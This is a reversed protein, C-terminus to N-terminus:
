KITASAIFAAVDAKIGDLVKQAAVRSVADKNDTSAIAEVCNQNQPATIKKTTTDILGYVINTRLAKLNQDTGCVSAVLSDDVMSLYQQYGKHSLKISNDKLLTSGSSWWLINRNAATDAYTIMKGNPLTDTITPTASKAAVQNKLESNEAALSKGKAQENSLNTQASQLDRNQMLVYYAGYGAAGLLLLFLIVIGVRKIGRHSKKVPFPSPTESVIPRQFTPEENM